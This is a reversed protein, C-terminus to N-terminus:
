RLVLSTFWSVFRETVEAGSSSLQLGDSSLESEWGGSWARISVHDVGGPGASSSLRWQHRTSGGRRSRLKLTLITQGVIADDGMRHTTTELAIPGELGVAERQEEIAVVSAQLAGRMGEMFTVLRAEARRRVEERAREQEARAKLAVALASRTSVESGREDERSM